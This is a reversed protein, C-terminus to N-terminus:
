IPNPLFSLHKGIDDTNQTSKNENEDKPLTSKNGDQLPASTPGPAQAGVAASAASEPAKKEEVAQEGVKLEM